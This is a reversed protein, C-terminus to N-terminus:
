LAGLMLQAAVAFMMAAVGLPLLYLHTSRPISANPVDLVASIGVIVLLLVGFSWWQLAYGYHM